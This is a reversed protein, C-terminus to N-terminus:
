NMRRPDAHQLQVTTGTVCNGDVGYNGHAGCRSLKVQM